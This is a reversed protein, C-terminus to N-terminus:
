TVPFEGFGPLRAWARVNNRWKGGREIGTTAPTSVISDANAELMASLYDSTADQM